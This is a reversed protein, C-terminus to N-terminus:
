RSLRAAIGDLVCELGTDFAVDFSPHDADRVVRALNPFRGTALLRQMYPGSAEQWEKKTKKSQLTARLESAEGRIAGLVFADVTRVALLVTDIDEFGPTDNLAALSAELFALANPGLHPRGGVLDIFWPHASAARRTRQAMARLTQRWDGRNRRTPLMEEYIADVLLDLLEEKTSVYRYLRMPGSNLAAGVKRLSVSDLGEKDAIAVAAGVIRERSLPAPAARRAPDSREWL